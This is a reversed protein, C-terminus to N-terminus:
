RPATQDPGVRFRYGGSNLSLLVRDSERRLIKVGDATALSGGSETIMSGPAAPLSLTATTNAPVLLQLTFTHDNLHWESAIRGRISQYEAKAWTVGGGPRPAIFFHQWGPQNEDPNLGAIQRWMWEGVAGFAWHNFSNMGADQFGRGRVYGDWREWITTAGNDIMYLWSPFTRNTLLQWALDSYGFRPLELMARHTTQIGTSLHNHYQRINDTLHRAAQPRLNEPLLNFSLALAYGGQTDGLIRGNPKVFRENFASKIQHFLRRYRRADTKRGLAEAMRATLETSHAFFATAFVEKPVSGGQAPWDAQRIW